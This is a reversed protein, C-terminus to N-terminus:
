MLHQEFLAVEATRLKKINMQRMANLLLLMNHLRVAPIHAKGTTATMGAVTVGGAGQM